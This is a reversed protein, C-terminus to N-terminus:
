IRSYVIDGNVITMDIKTNKIHDADIEYLDKETVAFDANKGLEVTGNENETYSAYAAYKTFLKVAEDVSM